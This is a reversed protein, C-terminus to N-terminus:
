ARKAESQNDPKAKDKAELIADAGPKIDDASNSGTKDQDKDVERNAGQQGQDKPTATKTPNYKEDYEKQQQRINAEDEAILDELTKDGTVVETVNKPKFLPHRRDLYYHVSPPHKKISILGWLIDEAVDNKQETISKIQKSFAEDAKIWEYYTDRNIGVKECAASVVGASKEWIQLFLVKKKTTREQEERKKKQAKNEIAYKLGVSLGGITDPKTPKGKTTDKTESMDRKSGV